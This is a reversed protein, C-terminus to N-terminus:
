SWATWPLRSGRYQKGRQGLDLRADMVNKPTRFASGTMNEVETVANQLVRGYVVDFGDHVDHM